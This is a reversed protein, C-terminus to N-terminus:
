STFTNFYEFVCNGLKHGVTKIIEAETNLREVYNKHEKWDGIKKQLADWCQNVWYREQENESNFLESLTPYDILFNSKRPYSIVNVHPIIPNRFIDYGSIKDYIEMSNECLEIFQKEDYSKSLYEFAENNSMLHATLYFLDVEREAEKSNLYAKHVYRDKSTLYHADTGYIM